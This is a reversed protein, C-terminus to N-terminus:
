KRGFVIHGNTDLVNKYLEHKANNILDQKVKELKTSNDLDM